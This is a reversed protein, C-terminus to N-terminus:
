APGVGLLQCAYYARRIARPYDGSELAEAAGNTLRRIRILEEESYPVVERNRRLADNAQQLLARAVQEPSVERVADASRLALSLSLEGLGRGLADVAQDHYRWANRMAGEVADAVLLLEVARAAKLAKENEALLAAVGEELLYPYLTASVPSYLTARVKQGEPFGLDWSRWWTDLYSEAPEALGHRALLDSLTPLGETLLVAGHTEPAVATALPDNGLDECASASLTLVVCAAACSPLHALSRNMR